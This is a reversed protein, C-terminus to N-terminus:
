KRLQINSVGNSKLMDMTYLGESKIPLVVGVRGIYNGELYIMGLQQSPLACCLVLDQNNLMYKKGVEIRVRKSGLHLESPLYAYRKRDHACENNPKCIIRNTELEFSTVTFEASGIASQVTTNVKATHACIPELDKAYKCWVSGLLSEQLVACDCFIKEVCVVVANHDGQETNKIQVWVPIEKDEMVITTYYMEGLVLDKKKM